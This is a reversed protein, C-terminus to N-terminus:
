GVLERYVSEHELACRRWTFQAARGLGRSVLEGDDDVAALVARALDDVSEPAFVSSAGGAVEDVASGQGHGGPLREGDGGTRAM